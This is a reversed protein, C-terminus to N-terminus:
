SSDPPVPPHRRQGYEGPDGGREDDGVLLVLHVLRGGRYEDLRDAVLVGVDGATTGLRLDVEVGLRLEDARCRHGGAGGLQELRAGRGVPEGVVDGDFYGRVRRDQDDRVRRALRLSGAGARV